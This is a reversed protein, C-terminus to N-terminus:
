EKRKCVGKFSFMKGARSPKLNEAMKAELTLEDAEVAGLITAFRYESQPEAEKNMYPDIDVASFSLVDDVKIFPVGKVNIDVKLPMAAAFKVDNFFVDVTSDTVETVSIGVGSQTYNGVNLDGYFIGDADEPFTSSNDVCSLLVVSFILPIIKRM